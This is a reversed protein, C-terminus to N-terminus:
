TTALVVAPPPFSEPELLVHDMGQFEAEAVARRWDAFWHPQMGALEFVAGGSRLKRIIAVTM